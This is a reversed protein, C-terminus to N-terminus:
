IGVCLQVSVGQWVYILQKVVQISVTNKTTKVQLAPVVLDAYGWLVLM